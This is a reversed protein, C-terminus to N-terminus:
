RHALSNLTAAAMLAVAQPLVSEDFDFKPHHHGYDLGRAPDSSGVMMYCGPVKELIFAMDDSGMTHYGADITAKPFLQGATSQLDATVSPDNVVAPTLPTIDIEAQCGMAGSVGNVVEGFRDILKKRVESDFSRITGQFQVSPPIVNFTEGGKIQTASIVAAQLPSVNRAVISQLATIVQAAALVPDVANQPLAGHGGKGNLKVSFIEAGAMMPGPTIGLWGVPKDNWLHLALAFDPSPNELVRDAIMAEAGGLGEEAPQFVFKVAGKIERRHAALIRATTLGIAVHGDHGCAHMKGPTESAYIAGTQETVPLADMDFRLLASRGPNDGKLLATVGTKGVGTMIELGLKELENVIVGATRVEEFGLEPHRHFDRRLDRSYEFLNKSEGLLDAM